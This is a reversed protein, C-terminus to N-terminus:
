AANEQAADATGAAPEGAAPGRAVASTPQPIGAAKKDALWQQQARLVDQPTRGQRRIIEPGSIYARDELIAYADAEKLPDIWPMSPPIYIAQCFQDFSVGRAPQVHGALVMAAVFRRYVEATHMDVFAYRLLSYSQEIEVLEQRQASYTGDYNRSISSASAMTGAGIARLQGNRWLLANPNPRKSDLISVDEGPYLSDLVMGPQFPMNRAANPASSAADAVNYDEPQGKKIVAALSAAVRAAIRESEEYDKLDDLRNLVAAFLSVGRRQGIRDVLKLHGIRDTTVRKLDPLGVFPDGPHQKYVYYAVPRGWADIEIAQSISQLPDSYDMPLMDCELLELSFPLGSAHTLYPVNGEVYQWFAEGDRLWSRCLLQESRARNFEATVEPYRSNREWLEALRQAQATDVQGDAGLPQPEVGIGNAGVINRVLVDLIGRALDHNRDLYRAVDRLPRQAYDAITNGSGMDRRQHRLRSTGIAEYASQMAQVRLRASARRAMWGPAVALMAREVRNLVPASM